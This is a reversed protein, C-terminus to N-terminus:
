GVIERVMERIEDASLNVPLAQFKHGTEATRIPLM